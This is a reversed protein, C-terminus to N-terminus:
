TALPSSFLLGIDADPVFRLHRFAGAKGPAPTLGAPGDAQRGCGGKVWIPLRTQAGSM